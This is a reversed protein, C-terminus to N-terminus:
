LLRNMRRVGDRVVVTGAGARYNAGRNNDWTGAGDNFTLQVGSAAGLGIEATLWGACADTMPVGPVSTWAAGDVGYHINTVTWGPRDPYYVTTTATATTTATTTTSPAAVASLGAAGPLAVALALAGALRARSRALRTTRM